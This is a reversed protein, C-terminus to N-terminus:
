RGSLRGPKSGVETPEGHFSLNLRQGPRWQTGCRCGAQVFLHPPERFFFSLNGLCDILWRRCALHISGPQLCVPIHAQGRHSKAIQNLLETQTSCDIRQHFATSCGITQILEVAHVACTTEVQACTFPYPAHAMRSFCIREQFNKETAMGYGPTLRPSESTLLYQSQHPM